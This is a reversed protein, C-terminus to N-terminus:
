RGLEKRMMDVLKWAMAMVPANPNGSVQLPVAALDMVRLGAVGRVNLREDLVAKPDGDIGMKCTGCSHHGSIGNRKVLDIIEDDTQAQAAEDLEELAYPQMASHTMLRRVFRVLRVTVARDYETGLYNPKVLPSEAPDASRAMLTGESTGRLPFAMYNCGPQPDMMTKNGKGPRALVSYPAWVIQGDARGTGGPMVEPFIVLQVAGASLPGTGFLYHRLVNRALRWGSYEPSECDQLYRLRWQGSHCFHDRYNAGVGPSDVVTEVGINALHAAPGVGSIQLIRPSEMAGASLVVERSARYVQQNGGSTCTVGVARRGEFMIRDVRTDVLIRLNPRRRVKPPLFAHAASVRRGRADINEAVPGIGLQKLQNADDKRPLGLDVAADVMASALRPLKTATRVPVPGGRGRWEVEPLLNNELARFCPLM